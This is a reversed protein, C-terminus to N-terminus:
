RHHGCYPCVKFEPKLSKGCQECDHHLSTACYPCIKFDEQVQKSCTPCNMIKPNIQTPPQVTPTITNSPKSSESAGTIFLVLGLVFSFGFQLMLDFPLDYGDYDFYLYMAVGMLVMGLIILVQNKM